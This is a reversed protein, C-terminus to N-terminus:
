FSRNFQKECPIGDGDGDMKTNPCYQNFFVAEEYSRMQSCHQREDCQFNKRATAPLTKMVPQEAVAQREIPKAIIQEPLDGHVARQQLVIKEQEAILTAVQAQQALKNNQYIGYGWYIAAMAITALLVVLAIIASGKYKRM